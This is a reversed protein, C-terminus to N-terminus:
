LRLRVTLILNIINLIFIAYYLRRDPMKKIKEELDEIRENANKVNDM